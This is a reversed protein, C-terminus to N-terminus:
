FAPAHRCDRHIEARDDALRDEVRGRIRCEDIGNAPPELALRDSLCESAVVALELDEARRQQIVVVAHAPHGCEQQVDGATMVCIGRCHSRM